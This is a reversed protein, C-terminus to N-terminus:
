KFLDDIMKKNFKNDRKGAIARLITQAEKKEDPSLTKVMDEVDKIDVEEGDNMRDILPKVTLDIMMCRMAIKTVTIINQKAETQLRVLGKIDEKWYIISNLTSSNYDLGGFLYAVSALEAKRYSATNWVESIDVAQVEWPKVGGIDFVQHYPIKNFLCRKFIYPIIFSKVGWGSLTTNPRKMMVQKFDDMFDSILLYEDDDFYQRVKIEDGEVRSITIGVIKGFEPYLHAIDKFEDEIFFAEEMHLQEKWNQEYSPNDCLNEVSSVTTIHIFIPDKTNNLVQTM